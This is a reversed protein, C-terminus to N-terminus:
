VNRKCLKLKYIRFARVFCVYGLINTTVMGIIKLSPSTLSKVIEEKCPIMGKNELLRFCELLGTHTHECLAISKLTEIYIKLKTTAVENKLHGLIYASLESKIVEFAEYCNIWKKYNMSNVCSTESTRNYYYLMDPIALPNKMKLCLCTLVQWDEGMYLKPNFRLHNEQFLESKYIGGCVGLGTNRSLLQRLYNERDRIPAVIKKITRNVFVHYSSFRIFDCTKFYQSCVEITNQNLWDDSDCFLVWSGTIKDLAYNRARSVGGNSVHFVRVRSDKQAYEDCINPSEDTSGDDVLMVEIDKYTQGVISDLCRRLYKSTNYIPVVVSVTCKNM